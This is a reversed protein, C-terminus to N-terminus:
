ASMNKDSTLLNSIYIHLQIWHFVSNIHQGNHSKSIQLHKIKTKCYTCLDRKFTCLLDHTSHFNYKFIDSKPAKQKPKVKPLYKEVHCHVSFKDKQNNMKWKLGYQLETNCNVNESSNNHSIKVTLNPLNILHAGKTIVTINPSLVGELLTKM